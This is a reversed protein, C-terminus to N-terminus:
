SPTDHAWASLMLLGFCLVTIAYTLWGLAHARHETVIFFLAALAFGAFIWRASLAARDRRELPFTDQRGDSGGQQEVAGRRRAGYLDTHAGSGPAAGPSAADPRPRV